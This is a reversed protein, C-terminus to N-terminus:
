QLKGIIYTMENIPGATCNAPPETEMELLEKKIRKLSKESM